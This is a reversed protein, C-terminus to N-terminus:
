EREKRYNREAIQETKKRIEAKEASSLDSGKQRRLHHVMRKEMGKRARRHEDINHPM